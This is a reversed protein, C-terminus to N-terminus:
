KGIELAKQAMLKIANFATINAEYSRTASMGDITEKVWDVNPMQVYGDEDADPHEPNYVPILDRQDEVIAAVRVGGVNGGTNGFSTKGMTGIWFSGGNHEENQDKLRQKFTQEVDEKDVHIDEVQNLHNRAEEHALEMMDSKDLWRLMNKGIETEMKVGKFCEEFAMDFKDFETESKVLIMRAVYYFQTLSSECLGKDLAEQLDLWEGLSVELGKDKLTYFFKSFM